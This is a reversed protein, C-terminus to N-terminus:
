ESSSGQETDELAIRAVDDFYRKNRPLFVWISLLLAGLTVLLLGAIPLTM